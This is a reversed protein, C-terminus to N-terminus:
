KKALPESSSQRKPTMTLILDDVTDIEISRRCIEKNQQMCMEPREALHFTGTFTATVSQDLNIPSRVSSADDFAAAGIAKESLYPLIAAGPCDKDILLSREIHDTVFEAHVLVRKNDFTGPSKSLECITTRIPTQQHPQPIHQAAIGPAICLLVNTMAIRLQMGVEPALARIRDMTRAARSFGHGEPEQMLRGNHHAPRFYPSGEGESRQTDPHCGTPLDRGDHSVNTTSFGTGKRNTSLAPGKRTM